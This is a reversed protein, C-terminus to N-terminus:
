SFKPIKSYPACIALVSRAEDDTRLNSEPLAIPDIWFFLKSCEGVDSNVTGFAAILLLWLLNHASIAL